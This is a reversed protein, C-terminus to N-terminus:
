DNFSKWATKLVSRFMGSCTYKVCTGSLVDSDDANLELFIGLWTTTDWLVRQVRKKEGKKRWDKWDFIGICHFWEKLANARDVSCRHQSGALLLVQAVTLRRPQEGFTMTRFVQAPYLARLLLFIESLRHESHQLSANETNTSFIYFILVPFM